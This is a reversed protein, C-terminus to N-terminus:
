YWALDHRYNVDFSKLSVFSAGYIYIFAVASYTASDPQQKTHFSDTLSAFGALYFMSFAIGISGIFILPRRGFKDLFFIFVLTAIVGKVVGYIGSAL